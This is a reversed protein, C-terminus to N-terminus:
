RGNNSAGITDRAAFEAISSFCVLLVGVSFSGVVAVQVDQSVIGVIIVILQIFPQTGMYRFVKPKMYGTIKDTKVM